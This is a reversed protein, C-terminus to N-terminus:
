MQMQMDNGQREIGGSLMRFLLCSVVVLVPFTLGQTPLFNYLHHFSSYGNYTQLVIMAGRVIM